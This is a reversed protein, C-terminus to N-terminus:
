NNEGALTYTAFKLGKCLIILSMKLKRARILIIIVKEFM